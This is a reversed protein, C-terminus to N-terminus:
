KGRILLNIVKGFWLIYISKYVIFNEMIYLLLIYSNNNKLILERNYTLYRNIRRGYM